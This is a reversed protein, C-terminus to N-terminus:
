GLFAIIFSANTGINVLLNFAMLTELMQINDWIKRMLKMIIFLSLAIFPFLVMFLVPPVGFVLTYLATIWGGLAVVTYLYVAKKRGLRVMMNKKGATKDAHYDPFENLLIVNFITLGIPLAIVHVLTSFTGTQLYYGVAIPLWGYCFAIWLEGIGTGVWRIPKTSYFFGALMGIFGMPLAWLGVHYVLILVLGLVAAIGLSIISSYLAVKPPLLGQEIVRSGGAFRSSHDIFSIKNESMDWYEGAFYTAMMIFIVAIIGLALVEGHIMGTDKWALLTGLSFPLIGVIHFPPRALQFWAIIKKKMM